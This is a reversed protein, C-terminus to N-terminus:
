TGCVGPTTSAPLPLRRGTRASASGWRSRRGPRRSGSCSRIARIPCTSSIPRYGGPIALTRGDPSFLPQGLYTRDGLAALRVPRARDAVSWLSAKFDVDVVAIVDDPGYAVYWVDDATGVRRTSAVLGALENRAEDGPQIKQAAIALRLAMATDNGITAKAQNFLERGVAIQQQEAAKEEQLRAQAAAQKAKQENERAVGGPPPGGGRGGRGIAATGARPAEARRGGRHGGQRPEAAAGRHDEPPEDGDGVATGTREAGPRGGEARRGAGAGAEGAAAAPTREEGATGGRRGGAGGAAQQERARKEQRKRRPAPPARGAGGEHPANEQQRQAEQAFREANGRQQAALQEQRRAEAASATARDANRGALVGALSAVVTLVALAAAAVGRLRRGRRHQRVDEGELEDKSVGHMPAALQAIADRFRAHQLSLQRDDRAWRLDLYLPEEAFVGRLADPVATSDAALDGREADWRWQGDTVVPLIRDAPKTAIWHEIERNVWPSQAAEPSALLVFWESGDLAQQISSWLAPTVSLGTQDRFIWLARRRHWPKALRHLGRQVRRRWGGTRPM